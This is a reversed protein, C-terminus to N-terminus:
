PGRSVMLSPSSTIPKRPGDGHLRAESSRHPGPPDGLHPHLNDTITIYSLRQNIQARRLLHSQAAISRRPSLSPMLPPPSAFPLSLILPVHLACASCHVTRLCDIVILWSGLRSWPNTCVTPVTCVVAACCLVIQSLGSSLVRKDWHWPRGTGPGTDILQRVQMM